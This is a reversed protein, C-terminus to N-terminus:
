RSTAWLQPRAIPVSASTISRTGNGMSLASCGSCLAGWHDDIEARHGRDVVIRETDEDIRIVVQPRSLGRMAGRLAFDQLRHVWVARRGCARTLPPEVLM